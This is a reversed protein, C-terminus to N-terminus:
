MLNRTLLLNKNIAKYGSEVYLHHSKDNKERFYRRPQVIKSNEVAQKWNERRIQYSNIMSWRYQEHHLKRDM